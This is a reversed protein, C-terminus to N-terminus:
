WGVIDSGDAMTFTGGAVQVGGANSGTRLTINRGLTLSGNVIFHRQNNNLQELIRVNAAGAASNSSVTLSKVWTVSM